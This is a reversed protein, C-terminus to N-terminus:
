FILNSTMLSSYIDNSLSDKLAPQLTRVGEGYDLGEISEFSYQGGKWKFLCHFLTEDDTLYLAVMLDKTGSAGDTMGILDGRFGNVRILEGNEREFVVIHRVPLPVDQGKFRIAAKVQLIFADRIDTDKKFPIIKFNEPSCTAYYNSDSSVMECIGLEELLDLHVPDDFKVDNFDNRIEEIKDIVNEKVDEKPETTDCATFCLAGIAILIILRIM